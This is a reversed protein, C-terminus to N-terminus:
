FGAENFAERLDDEISTKPNSKRAAGNPPTSRPSQSAARAREVNSKRQDALIRERTEPHLWQAQEYAEQLSKARGSQLLAGIDPALKDFDPKSQRFAQIEAEIRADEQAEMQRQYQERAEQQQREFQQIRQELTQARELAMQAAREAPNMEQQQQFAQQALQGLDVGYSKAIWQLAEVPHTRLFKDAQVLKEVYQHPAVGAAALEQQHESLAQNVSEWPKLMEARRQIEQSFASERERLANRFPEPMQQWDGFEDKYWVPRWAPPQQAQQPQPQQAAAAEEAEKQAKAFRGAEDRQYDRAAKDEAEPAEDVDPAAEKGFAKDLEANLDAELDLEDDM